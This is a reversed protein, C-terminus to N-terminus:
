HPYPHISSTIAVGDTFDVGRRRAAGSPVSAGLISESNTRTLAGVRASLRPLDGTRRARHLLRQTDLAGAAFVGQEAEFVRRGRRLRGGTRVAHIDYGGGSRSRVATATTM